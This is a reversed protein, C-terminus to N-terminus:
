LAANKKKVYLDRLSTPSSVIEQQREPSVRSIVISGSPAGGEFELRNRIAIADARSECLALTGSFYGEIADKATKLGCGTFERLIKISTIKNPFTAGPASGITLRTGHDDTIGVHWPRPTGIAFMRSVAEGTFRFWEEIGDLDVDDGFTVWRGDRQSGVSFEVRIKTPQNDDDGDDKNAM